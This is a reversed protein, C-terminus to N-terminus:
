KLIGAMVGKIKDLATKLKHVCPLTKLEHKMISNNAEQSYGEGPGWISTNCPTDLTFYGDQGTGLYLWYQWNWLCYGQNDTPKAQSLASPM